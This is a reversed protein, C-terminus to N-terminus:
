SNLWEDFTKLPGGAADRGARVSCTLYTHYRNALTSDRDIAAGLDAEQMLDAVLVADLEDRCDLCVLSMQGPYACSGHQDADRQRDCVECYFLAPPEPEGSDYWDDYDM